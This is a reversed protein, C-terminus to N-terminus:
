NNQMEIHQLAFAIKEGNSLEQVSVGKSDTMTLGGDALTYGTTVQGPDDEGNPNRVTAYAHFVETSPTSRAAM